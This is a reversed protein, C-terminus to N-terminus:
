EPAMAALLRDAQERLTVLVPYSFDHGGRDLERLHGHLNEIPVGYRCGFEADESLNYVEGIGLMSLLVRAYKKGRYTRVQIRYSRASVWPLRVPKM